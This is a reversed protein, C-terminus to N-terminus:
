EGNSEKCKYWRKEWQQFCKQFEETSINNLVELTKKKVESVDTFRKGKMQCKIRPFLFFDCPVLDPSYPPHPIVMMNNKKKALFQQVSLATHAPANDHHLFWDGSSWMESRKKRVSECLRKLVGLYFPQNVTQGPPVFEKHVIGNADSFGILM